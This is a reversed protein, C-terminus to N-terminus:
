FLEHQSRAGRLLLGIIPFVHYESKATIIPGILIQKSYKNSQFLKVSKGKLEIYVGLQLYIYKCLCSILFASM